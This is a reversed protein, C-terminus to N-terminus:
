RIFNLCFVQLTQPTMCPTDVDGNNSWICSVPKRAPLQCVKSCDAFKECCNAMTHRAKPNLAFRKLQVSEVQVHMM